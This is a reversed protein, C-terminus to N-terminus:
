EKLVGVVEKLNKFFNINYDGVIVITSDKLSINGIRKGTIKNGQRKRFGYHVKGNLVFYIASKGYCLIKNDEVIM